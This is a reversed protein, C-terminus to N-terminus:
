GSTPAPNAIDQRGSHHTSREILRMEAAQETQSTAQHGLEVHLLNEVLDELGCHLDGSRAVGREPHEVIPAPLEFPEDGDPDIGLGPERDALQRTTMAYEPNQDVIRVRQPQGIDALMRLAISKGFPM